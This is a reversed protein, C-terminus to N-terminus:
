NIFETYSSYGLNDPPLMDDLGCNESKNRSRSRIPHLPQALSMPTIWSGNKQELGFFM